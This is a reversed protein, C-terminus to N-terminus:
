GTFYNRLFISAVAAEKVRLYLLCVVDAVAFRQYDLFCRNTQM